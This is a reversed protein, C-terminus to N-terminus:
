LAAVARGPEHHGEKFSVVSVVDFLFPLFFVLDASIEASTGAVTGNSICEVFGDSLGCLVMKCLDELARWLLPGGGVLEVILM